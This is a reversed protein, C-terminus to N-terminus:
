GFIAFGWCPSSRSSYSGFHFEFGWDVQKLSGFGFLLCFRGRFMLLNRCVSLSVEHDYTHGRSSCLLALRPVRSSHTFFAVVLLLCCDNDQPRRLGNELTEAVFELLLFFFCFSSVANFPASGM